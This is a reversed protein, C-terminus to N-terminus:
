SQFFEVTFKVHGWREFLNEEWEDSNNKSFIGSGAICM